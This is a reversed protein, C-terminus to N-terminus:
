RLCNRRLSATQISSPHRIFPAQHSEARISTLKPRLGLRKGLGAQLAPFSPVCGASPGFTRGNAIQAGVHCHITPEM